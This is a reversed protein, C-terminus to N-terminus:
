GGKPNLPRAVLHFGQAVHLFGFKESRKVVPDLMTYGMLVKFGLEEAKQIVATTIADILHGREEKSLGPAAVLNEFFAVSSDTKYIFGAGIGPVIFGWEPLAEPVLDENRAQFWSRM